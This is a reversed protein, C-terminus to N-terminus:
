EKYSAERLKQWYKAVQGTALIHNKFHTDTIIITYFRSRSTAVNFRNPTFSFSASGYPIIFLTVDCTMGQVRDITEILVNFNGSLTSYIEEQLMKVTDVFPALVSIELKPNNQTLDQVIDLIFDALKKPRKGHDSLDLFLLSPGGESNFLKSNSSIVPYPPSKDAVSILSDDYFIGTYEAAKKGLRYTEIKRYSPVKRNYSFTELGNVITDILHHIKKPDNQVVIPPLQKYDGIILMKKSLPKFAAITALFSQSAEEIVLYDFLNNTDNAAVKSLQYYTALILKGPMPSIDTAPILKPVRAIEDTSLNTKYVCGKELWVKLHEKEALETLSRNSNATVIVAKNSNLLESCLEAIMYTKGTGPPGQIIIEDNSKFDSLLKKVPSQRDSLPEPGWSNDKFDMYLIKGSVSDRDSKEVVKKLNLLYEIPPEQKGIIISTKKENCNDILSKEFGKYHIYRYDAEQRNSIFVPFIDSEYKTFRRLDIYTISSWKNFDPASSRVTFGKYPIKVRPLKGKKHRLIVNGKSDIGWFKGVHMKNLKYLGLAKSLWYEKLKQEQARIEEEYFEIHEQKPFIM